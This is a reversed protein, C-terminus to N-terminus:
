CPSLVSNRTAPSLFVLFELVHHLVACLMETFLLSPLTHGCIKVNKETLNLPSLSTEHFINSTM